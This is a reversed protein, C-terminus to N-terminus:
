HKQDEEVRSDACLTFWVLMEMDISMLNVLFIVAERM